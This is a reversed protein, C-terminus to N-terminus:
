DEVGGLAILAVSPIPIPQGILFDRLVLQLWERSASVEEVVLLYKGDPGGSRVSYRGIDICVPSAEGTLMVELYIMRAKSRLRLELIRGYREIKGELMKKAATAALSDKLNGLTM